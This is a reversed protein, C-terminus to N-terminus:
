VNNVEVEGDFRSLRFMEDKGTSILLEVDDNALAYEGKSAARIQADSIGVLLEQPFCREDLNGRGRRRLWLYMPAALVAREGSRRGGEFKIALSVSGSSETSTARPKLKDIVWRGSLTVNESLNITKDGSSTVSTNLLNELDYEIERIKRKDEINRDEKPRDMLELLNMFDDLEMSWASLGQQLAGLHLLYNSSWRRLAWHTESVLYDVSQELNEELEKWVRICSREIETVYPPLDIPVVDYDSDWRDYFNAPLDEIWPDLNTLTKNESLLRTVGVDTSPPPDDIVHKLSERTEPKCGGTANSLSRFAKLQKKRLNDVSELGRPSYPAFLSMYIRRSALSFIDNSAVRSNVWTCPHVNEYDKPCGALLLSIIALAERFVIVQGSLVEARRFLQLVQGRAGQNALWDRNTKFPCMLYLSCSTCQSWHEDTVANQILREFTGEGRLLSQNDLHDYGIKVNSFVTRRSDDRDFKCETGIVGSPSTANVLAKIIKFWGQRNVSTRLHNDRYAKEIIGRNTCVVLSIGRKWADQLTDLLDKAPDIESSFPNRVVSADQVIKVSAFKNNGEYVDIAYPISSPGLSNIDIGSEDVLRCGEDNILGRCLKGIAASKGNGPSGILFHWRATDNGNVQLLTHQLNEIVADLEIAVELLPKHKTWNSPASIAYKGDQQLALLDLLFDNQNEILVM